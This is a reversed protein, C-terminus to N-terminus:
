VCTMLLKGVEEKPTASHKGYEVCFDIGDDYSLIDFGM